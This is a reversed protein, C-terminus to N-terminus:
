NRELFVLRILLLIIKCSFFMGFNRAKKFDTPAWFNTPIIWHASKQPITIITVGKETVELSRTNFCFTVSQMVKSILYIYMKWHVVKLVASKRDHNQHLFCGNVDDERQNRCRTSLRCCKRRQVAENKPYSRQATDRPTAFVLLRGRHPHSALFQWSHPSAELIDLVCRCRFSAITIAFANAIANAHLPLMLMMTTMTMMTMMM